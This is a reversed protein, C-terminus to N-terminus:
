AIAQNGGAFGLLSTCDIVWERTDSEKGFGQNPMKQVWANTASWRTNGLADTVLLDVVGGNNRKDAVWLASLVDNGASTQMLTLTVKGAYNNTKSRATHGDAGTTKNWQQEDFEINIFTGDAYGSIVNGGLTVYVEAPDYTAFSPRASM